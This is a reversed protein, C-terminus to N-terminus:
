GGPGIYAEEAVGPKSKNRGRYEGPDDHQRKYEYSNRLYGQFVTSAQWPNM